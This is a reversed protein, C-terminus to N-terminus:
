ASAAASATCRSISASGRTTTSPSSTPRPPMKPWYLPRCCRKPASRTISVGIESAAIMPAPTPMASAPRRGTTSIRTTSKASHPMSSSTFWAALFRKMNPPWPRTGSTARMGPPM